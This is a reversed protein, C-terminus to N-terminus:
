RLFIGGKFKATNKAIESNVKLIAKQTDLQGKLVRSETSGAGGLWGGVAALSSAARMSSKGKKEDPVDAGAAAANMAKKTERGQFAMEQQMARVNQMALRVLGLGPVLSNQVAEPNSNQRAKSITDSLSAKLAATDFKVLGMAGLDPRDPGKGGFPNMANALKAAGYDLAAIIVKGLGAFAPGIGDVIVNWAEMAGLKLGDVLVGGLEGTRFLEMAVRMGDAIIGGFKRAGAELSSLFESGEGLAPKLAIMIPEGFTRLLGNFSDKLTSLMGNFTKGMKETMGSFQGGEATLSQFAKLLQPFGVKGEEVLKRVHSTSVGFQDALSQMVPIGRDGLQKMDDGMLRGNQRAKGFISALDEVPMGAGKAIDGLMRLEGIVDGAASSTALLNRAAGALEPFEFPTTNAFQQIDGLMAKARAASGLMVEFQTATEELDAALNIGKIAGFGSGLAGGLAGLGGVLGTLRMLGSGLSSFAGMAGAIGKRLPGIDLGMTYAIKGSM